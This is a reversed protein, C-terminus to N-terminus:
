AAAATRTSQYQGGRALIAWATRATKNAIAVSVLNGNGGSWQGASCGAMALLPILVLLELIHRLKAAQDPKQSTLM